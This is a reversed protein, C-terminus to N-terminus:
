VDVTVRRKQRLVERVDKLTAALDSEMRVLCPEEPDETVLPLSQLHLEWDRHARMRGLAAAPAFFAFALQEYKRAETPEPPESDDDGAASGDAATFPPLKCLRLAELLERQTHGDSALQIAREIAARDKPSLGDPPAALAALLDQPSAPDPSGPGSISLLQRKTLHAQFGYYVQIFRGATREPLDLEERLWEPWTKVTRGFQGFPGSRNLGHGFGLQQKLHWLQWGLCIQAAIFRRGCDRVAALCARAHDWAPATSTSLASPM